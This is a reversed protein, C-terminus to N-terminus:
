CSVMPLSLQSGGKDHKFLDLINILLHLTKLSFNDELWNYVMGGYVDITSHDNTPTKYM